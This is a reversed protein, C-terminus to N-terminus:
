KVLKDIFLIGNLHDIEHQVIASTFWSLNKTITHGEPTTYRITVSERREVPGYINPLSLCWEEGIITKTSHEVIEPNLLIIPESSLMKKGKKDRQTIAIVRMDQGIQPAALGVGDYEHLLNKLWQVVEQVNPDTHDVPTTITRLIPNNAGYQLPFRQARNM